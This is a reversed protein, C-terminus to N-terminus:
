RRGNVSMGGNGRREADFPVWFSGIDLLRGLGIGTAIYIDSLVDISGSGGICKCISGKRGADSVKIRSCM